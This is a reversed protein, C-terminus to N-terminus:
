LCVTANSITEKEEIVELTQLILNSFANWDINKSLRYAQEREYTKM